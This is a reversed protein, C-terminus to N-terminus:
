NTTTQTFDSSNSTGTCAGGQITNTCTTVTTLYDQSTSCPFVFVETLTTLSGNSNTTTVTGYFGNNSCVTETFATDFTSNSSTASQITLANALTTTNKMTSVYVGTGIIAILAVIVVFSVGIKSVASRLQM